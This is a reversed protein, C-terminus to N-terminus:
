PTSTSHVGLQDPPEGLLRGVEDYRAIRGDGGHVVLEADRVVEFASVDGAHRVLTVCFASNGRYLRFAHQSDDYEVHLADHRHTRHRDGLFSMM